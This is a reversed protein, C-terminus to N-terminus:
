ASVTEALEEKLMSLAVKSYDDHYLAQAEEVTLDFIKTSCYVNFFLKREETNGELRM